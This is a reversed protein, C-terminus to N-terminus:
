PSPVCSAMLKATKNAFDIKAVQMTCKKGSPEFSVPQNGFVPRIIADKGAPMIQLTIYREGNMNQFIVSVDTDANEIHQLEGEAITLVANNPKPKPPYTIVGGTGNPQSHPIATGGTPAKPGEEKQTGICGATHLATVFGTCAAILTGAATFIGPLTVWFSPKKDSADAKAEEGSKKSRVPPM